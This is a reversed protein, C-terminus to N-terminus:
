LFENRELVVFSFPHENKEDAAFSERSIENWERRDYEPFFTDGSVKAHVETLYIRTVKDLTLRYLEAGGMIFAGDVGECLTIAEELSNSIQCGDSTYQTDRSIVINERGPLARDISEHTKRGMIIPKGMTTQKVYKLDASLRWPLENNLGITGDEDMAVIISLIMYVDECQLQRRSPHIHNM